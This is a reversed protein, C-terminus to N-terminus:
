MKLKSITSAKESFSDLKQKAKESADQEAKRVTTIYETLASDFYKSFTTLKNVSQDCIKKLDKFRYSLDDEDGNTTSLIDSLGNAYSSMNELSKILNKQVATKMNDKWKTLQKATMNKKSAM